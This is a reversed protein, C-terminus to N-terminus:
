SELVAKAEQANLILTFSVEIFSEEPNRKFQFSM